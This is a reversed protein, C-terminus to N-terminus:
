NSIEPEESISNHVTSGSPLFCQPHWNYYMPPSIRGEWTPIPNFSRGFIPPASGGRGRLEPMVTIYDKMINM